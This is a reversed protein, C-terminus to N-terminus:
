ENKKKGDSENIKKTWGSNHDRCITEVYKESGKKEEQDKM